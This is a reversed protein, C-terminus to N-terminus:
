VINYQISSNVKKDELVRELDGIKETQSELQDSLLAVQLHLSDKDGELQLLRDEISPYPQLATCANTPSSPPPPCHHHHHCGSCCGAM